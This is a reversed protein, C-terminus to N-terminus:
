YCFAVFILAYYACSYGIPDSRRDKYVMHIKMLVRYEKKM